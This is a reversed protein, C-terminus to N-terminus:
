VCVLVFNVQSSDKYVLMGLLSPILAKLLFGDLVTDIFTIIVNRLRIM